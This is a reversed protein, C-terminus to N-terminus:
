RWVAYDLAMGRPQASDTSNRMLSGTREKRKTQRAAAHNANSGFRKAVVMEGVLAVSVSFAVLCNEALVAEVQFVVQPVIELVPRKFAASLGRVQVTVAVAVFPLPLAVAVTLTTEGYRMVGTPAFVGCPFVCCNRSFTAALHVAAQPDMLEVPRYVAEPAAM